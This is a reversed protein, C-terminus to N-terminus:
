FRICLFLERACDRILGLFANGAACSGFMATHPTKIGNLNNRIAFSGGNTYLEYQYFISQRRLEGHTIRLVRKKPPYIAYGFSSILFKQMM